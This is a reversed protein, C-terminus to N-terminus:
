PHTAHDLEIIFCTDALDRGSGTAPAISRAVAAAPRVAGAGNNGWPDVFWLGSPDQQLIYAEQGARPIAQRQPAPAAFAMERWMDSSRGANAVWARRYPLGRASPGCLWGSDVEGPMGTTTAGGVRSYVFKM